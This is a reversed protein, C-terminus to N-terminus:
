SLYVSSEITIYESGDVTYNVVIHPSAIQDNIDGVLFSGRVIDLTWNGAETIKKESKLRVCNDSDGDAAASTHLAITREGNSLTGVFSSNVANSYNTFTICFENLSGVNQEASPEITYAVPPEVLYTAKVNPSLTTEEGKKLLFSGGNVKL